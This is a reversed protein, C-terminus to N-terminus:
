GLLFFTEMEGKGKIPIIGRSEFQYQDSLAARVSATVHIKNPAGHSEMRSATNVTDGWVDYQFKSTGIVGAVAPGTNIGIRISLPGSKLHELMELAMAALAQAHDVRSVPVGAAVMYGDGITRIKECGYRDALHDFHTFVYNLLDVMEKPDMSASLPTFGVLDAFLVSISEFRQATTTGYEKLEAAVEAPLVNLLLGEARAREYSLRNLVSVLILALLGLNGVAVIVFLMASLTPDPQPRGAALSSEMVGLVVDSLAFFAAVGVTIKRPFALAATLVLTFGWVVYGGSNAYGGLLVHVSLIGLTSAVVTIAVMGFLGGRTAYWVWGGLYAVSLVSTAWGAGPEGFWFFAMATFATLVVAAWAAGTAIRVVVRPNEITAAVGSPKTRAALREWFTPQAGPTSM